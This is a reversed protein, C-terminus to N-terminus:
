TASWPPWSHDGRQRAGMPPPHAVGSPVGASAPRIHLVGAFRSRSARSRGTHEAGRDARGPGDAGRAPRCGPECSAHRFSLAAVHDLELGGTKRAGFSVVRRFVRVHHACSLCRSCKCRRIGRRHAVPLQQAQLLPPRAHPNRRDSGSRLGRRHPGRLRRVPGRSLPAAGRLFRGICSGGAHLHGDVDQRSGPPSPPPRVPRRISPAERAPEPEPATSTVEPPHM